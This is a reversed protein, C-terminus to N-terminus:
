PAHMSATGVSLAIYGSALNPARIGSESDNVGQCAYKAMLRRNLSCAHNPGASVVVDSLYRGTASNANAHSGAIYDADTNAYRHVARAHTYTSTATTAPLGSIQLCSTVLRVPM